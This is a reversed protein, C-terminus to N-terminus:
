NETRESKREGEITLVDDTLNLKVDDKKMGPLDARIHLKGDKEYMEVQPSWISRELDPGELPARFLSGGFGLHDFMRDMERRFEHMLGFPGDHWLGFPERRALQEQRSQREPESRMP